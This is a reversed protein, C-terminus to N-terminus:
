SDAVKHLVRNLEIAVETALGDNRWRELTDVSVQLLATLQHQNLAESRSLSDFDAFSTPLPRM